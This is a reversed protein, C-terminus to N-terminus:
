ALTDDGLLGRADSLELAVITAADPVASVREGTRIQVGLRRAHRELAEVLVGWGGVLFRAPLKTDLLLRQTREWVFAASLEGPDHHFTYVGALGSLMAATREDSHDSVWSRFDQDVPALRGRLRLGRPILSLPPTRHIADDYHFRVGTLQPRAVPPLLSRESMWKWLAGGKYIAHPGLNTRYPGADSRARGGLSESAELLEVEVGQEACTIAATLGAVGGGIVTIKQM